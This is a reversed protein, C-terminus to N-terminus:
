RSVEVRQIDVEFYAALKPLVSFGDAGSAREYTLISLTDLTGASRQVTYDLWNNHHLTIVDHLANFVNFNVNYAQGTFLTLPRPFLNCEWTPGSGISGNAMVDTLLM